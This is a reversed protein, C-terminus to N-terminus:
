YLACSASVKATFAKKAAQAAKAGSKDLSASLANIDFRLTGVQNRLEERALTWYKKDIYQGVVTDIRKESEKIRNKAVALDSRVQTLGDRVSQPASPCV